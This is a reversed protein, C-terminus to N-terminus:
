RAVLVSVKSLTVIKAAQSGLLLRDLGRRGHTSIVILDCTEQECAELIGEAAPKGSIHRTTCELGMEEAEAAVRDLIDRAARAAATEYREVDEPHPFLSGHATPYHNSVTIATVRASMSRALALGRAVARGALDSGDTAILINRYM